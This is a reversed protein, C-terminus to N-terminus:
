EASPKGFVEVDDYSIGAGALQLQANPWELTIAVAGDETSGGYMRWKVARKGSNGGLGTVSVGPSGNGHLPLTEGNVVASDASGEIPAPRVDAIFRANMLLWRDSGVDIRVLRM